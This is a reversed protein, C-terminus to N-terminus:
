EVLRVGFWKAEDDWFFYVSNVTAYMKDEGLFRFRKGKYKDETPGWGKDVTGYCRTYGTIELQGSNVDPIIDSYLLGARDLTAKTAYTVYKDDVKGVLWMGDCLSSGNAADQYTLFILFDRGEDSTIKYARVSTNPKVSFSLYERSGDRSILKIYGGANKQKVMVLYPKLKIEENNLYFISGSLDGECPVALGNHNKIMMVKDLGTLQLAEASTTVFLMLVGLVLIVRSFEKWMFRVLVFCGGKEGLKVM